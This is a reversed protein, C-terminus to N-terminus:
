IYIDDFAIELPNHLSFARESSVSFIYGDFEMTEFFCPRESSKGLVFGDATPVVEFSDLPLSMGRGTMKMYSEKLTWLTFFAKDKNKAAKIYALESHYFYHEAVELPANANKEIDCGVECDSLVGVVYDGAHSVNFFLGDM